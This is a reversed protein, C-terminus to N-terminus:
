ALMGGALARASRRRPPERDEDVPVSVPVTVGRAMLALYQLGDHPHSYMDKDPEDRYIERGPVAMRRLSYGGMFGKRLVRCRESLLLGPDGGDMRTLYSAVAERRPVFANTPVSRMVFGNAQLVDFCTREDTQAPTEGAPDGATPIKALPWDGYDLALHPLVVRSAFQEIGMRDSIIEDLVRLQGRPTAQGIICAPTLGFDFGLLLPLGKIPQLGPRYHVDDRYEPYVPKGDVVFGYQGLVYVKIWETSAGAIQNLWYRYGLQHNQVNEAAPNPLYKGNPLRILAGPQRFFAFDDASFPEGDNDGAPAKGEEAVKYWWHDTDPPNTDMILCTRTLPAVDKRPYRGLRSRVALVISWPLERAENIFAWTLELSLLKKVDKPKDLALFLVECHVRTKGDPHPMDIVGRIPADYVISCVEDPIWEQWTKITTSKLEGYTNRIVAGRSWRVGRADPAQCMAIRWCEMICGVSKGSGIPGLIGRVLPLSKHFRSLTPSPRYRITRPAALAVDM